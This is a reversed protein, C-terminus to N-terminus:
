KYQYFLKSTPILVLVDKYGPLTVIVEENEKRQNEFRSVDIIQDNLEVGESYFNKKVYFSESFYWMEKTYQVKNNEKWNTFVDGGGHRAELYVQYKSVKDANLKFQNMEQSFGLYSAGMLLIMVIAKM